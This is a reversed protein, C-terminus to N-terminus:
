ALFPMDAELGPQTFVRHCPLYIEGRIAMLAVVIESRPQNQDIQSFWEGRKRAQPAKVRGPDHASFRNALM